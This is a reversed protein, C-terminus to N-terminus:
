YFKKNKFIGKSSYDNRRYSLIESPTNSPSILTLKLDGRLSYKFSVNAIVHELREVNACESVDITMQIKGESPIKSYYFIKFFYFFQKFYKNLKLNRINEMLNLLVVTDRM